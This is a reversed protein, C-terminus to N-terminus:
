YSSHTVNGTPEWRAHIWRTVEPWLEEHAHRGVLMGAHQLSVGVDGRYWLLTKDSSKAARHFPLVARPPVVRCRADVISLLPAEVMEPVARRGGVTLSGRMFRNQRYLQETVEEFLRRALPVEDLTWREVRLHTLLANMDGLSAMWDQWRSWGFTAPSAIFAAGSLVSGPVNGLGETLTQAKPALAVLGDIAGVDKGFHLPAGVLILGKVREPHLASFLAAFTGGLSHGAVFVPRQGTQAHIKDLCELMLRGAYEALGFAQEGSGPPTWEIMYVRLGSRLCRQVVSIEPALDWLYPGKFPAPVILLVPGDRAAGAYHRLTVGAESLLIEHPTESRGVGAADLLKGLSKRSRDVFALLSQPISPIM